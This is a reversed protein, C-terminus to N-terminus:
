RTTSAQSGRLAASFGRNPRRAVEASAAAAPTDTMPLLSSTADDGNTYPSSTDESQRHFVTQLIATYRDIEEEMRVWRERLRYSEAQMEEQEREMRDIRAQITRLHEVGEQTGEDNEAVTAPVEPTPAAVPLEAGRGGDADAQPPLRVRLAGRDREQAPQPPEEQEVAQHRTQREEAEKADNEVDEQSRWAPVHPGAGQRPRFGGDPDSSPQPPPEGPPRPPANNEADTDAGDVADPPPQWDPPRFDGSTQVIDLDEFDGHGLGDWHSLTPPPGSPQKLLEKVAEKTLLRRVGIVDVFFDELGAKDSYHTRLSLARLSDITKAGDLEQAVDWWAESAYLRRPRAEGEVAIIVLREDGVAAGVSRIEAEPMSACASCLRSFIQNAVDGVGALLARPSIPWGPLQSDSSGPQRSAVDVEDVLRRLAHLFVKPPFAEVSRSVGALGVFFHRLSPGFRGYYEELAPVQALWQILGTDEWTCASAQVFGRQPIYVLRALAKRDSPDEFAKCSCALDAQALQKYLDAFFETDRCGGARLMQLCRLLGQPTVTTTVGLLTLCELAHEVGAVREPGESTPLSSYPLYRSGIAGYVSHLFLGSISVPAHAGVAEPRSSQANPKDIRFVPLRRLWALEAESAELIRRRVYGSVVPSSLARMWWSADALLGGLEAAVAARAANHANGGQALALPAVGLADFFVEWRLADGGWDGGLYQASVYRLPPPLGTAAVAVSMDVKTGGLPPLAGQAGSTAEAVAKAVSSGVAAVGLYTPCVLEACRSVPPLGVDVPMFLVSGLQQWDALLSEGATTVFLPTLNALRLTEGLSVGAHFTESLCALSAWVAEARAPRLWEDSFRLLHWEVCLGAVVARSPEVIAVAALFHSAGGELASRVRPDLIRLAGELCLTRQWAEPLDACFRDLVPGDRLRLLQGEPAASPLLKEDWLQQLASSPQEALHLVEDLWAFLPRFFGAGDGKQAAAGALGSPWGEGRYRLLLLWHELGLEQVGLGRLPGLEGDSVAFRKGCAKRLLESPILRAAAAAVAGSPRLVCDEPAALGGEEVPVCATGQLSALIRVRVRRWLGDIAEHGIFSLTRGGIEDKHTRLASAFAVPIAECLIKNIVSGEHVDGRNAILDFPGNIAFHFGIRRVPPGCYIAQLPPGKPETTKITDASQPECSLGYSGGVNDEETGGGGGASHVLPFALKLYDFDGFPLQVEQNYVLYRHVDVAGPEDDVRQHKHVEVECGDGKREYTAGRGDPYEIELHRVRRMFLLCAHHAELHELALSVSAAAGPRLPLYVVTGGGKHAALVEAPLRALEKTGVWTPTVYGLRGLPGGIDFKFTFPGSLMHPCDSVVFTSKWGIGKQGTFGKRGAKSSANVDCLAAVDEGRLGIENNASFFYAGPGRAFLEDGEDFRLVLRLSPCCHEDGEQMDYRNDDANQLLEYVFHSELEYLDEAIREVARVLVRRVREAGERVLPPLSTLSDAVLRLRRIREVFEEAGKVAFPRQADNEDTDVDVKADDVSGEPAAAPQPLVGAPDLRTIVTDAVGGLPRRVPLRGLEAELDAVREELVLQKTCWDAEAKKLLRAAQEESEDLDGQEGIETVMLLEPLVVGNSAAVKRLVRVRSQMDSAERCISRAQWLGQRWEALACEWAGGEAFGVLIPLTASFRPLLESGLEAAGAVATRLPESTRLAAVLAAPCRMVCREFGEATAVRLEQHSGGAHGQNSCLPPTLYNLPTLGEADELLLAAPWRACLWRVLSAPTINHLVDALLNQGEAACLLHLPTRAKEDINHWEAGAWELAPLDQVSMARSGKEGDPTCKCGARVADLLARQVDNRAKAASEPVGLRAFVDFLPATLRVSALKGLPEWSHGVEEEVLSGDGGGGISWQTTQHLIASLRGVDVPTRADLRRLGKPAGRWRPMFAASGGVGAALLPVWHGLKGDVAVPRASDAVPQQRPGVMLRQSSPSSKPAHAGSAGDVAAIAEENVSAGLITSAGTESSPGVADDVVSKTCTAAIPGAVLAERLLEADPSTPRPVGLAQESRLAKEVARGGGSLPLSDAPVELASTSAPAM